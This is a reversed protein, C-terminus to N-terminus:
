NLGRKQQFGMWLVTGIVGISLCSLWLISSIGVDINETKPLLVFDDNKMSQYYLDNAGTQPEPASINEENAMSNGSLSDDQMVCDITASVPPIPANPTATGVAISKLIPTHECYEPDTVTYSIKFRQTESADIDRNCTVMSNEISCSADSKAPDFIADGPVAGHRATLGKFPSNSLNKLTVGYVAHLNKGNPVSAANIKAIEQDIEDGNKLICQVSAPVSAPAKITKLPLVTDCNSGDTVKYVIPFKKTQSVGITETCTVSSKLMSCTKASKSADFALGGPVAGHELSVGTLPSVAPNKATVTYLLYQDNSASGANVKMLAADLESGQVTTCQVAVSVPPIGGTVNAFATRITQLVPTIRCHAGNTIKYVIPFKKTQSAGLTQNCQVLPSLFQCNKSSKLGDFTSGFPVPGHNLQLGSLPKTDLNKLTVTYLAYQNKDNLGSSGLSSSSGSRPNIVIANGSGFGGFTGRVSSSTGYPPIYVGSDVRDTIHLIKEYCGVLGRFCPPDLLPM